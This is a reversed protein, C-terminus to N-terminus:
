AQLKGSRSFLLAAAGATLGTILLGTRGAPDFLDLVAVCALFLGGALAPIPFAPMKWGADRTAGARRGHLAALCLGSYTVVNSNGLILVLTHPDLLCALLGCGGMCLTAASPSGWGRTAALLRSVPKPWLEDRGTAYLQRGAMLAIGIMTNFIALAVGLSMVQALRRGGLAEVLTAVPARSATLARLDPAGLIIFAIPPM